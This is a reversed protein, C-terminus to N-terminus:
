YKALVKYFSFNELISPTDFVRKIGNRRSVFASRFPRRTRRRRRGRRRFGLGTYPNSQPPPPPM